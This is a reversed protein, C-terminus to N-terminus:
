DEVSVCLFRMCEVVDSCVGGRTREVIDSWVGGPAFCLFSFVSDEDGRAVM